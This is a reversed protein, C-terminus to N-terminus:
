YNTQNKILSLCYCSCYSVWLQPIGFVQYWKLKRPTGEQWLQTIRRHETISPLATLVGAGWKSWKSDTNPLQFRQLFKNLTKEFTFDYGRSSVDAHKWKSLDKVLTLCKYNMPTIQTTDTHWYGTIVSVNFDWSLIWNDTAMWSICFLSLNIHLLNDYFISISFFNKSSKFKM